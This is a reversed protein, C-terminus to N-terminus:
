LCCLSSCCSICGAHQAIDECLGVENYHRLQESEGQKRWVLESNYSLCLLFLMGQLSSVARWTEMSLLVLLGNSLNVTDGWKHSAWVRLGGENSDIINELCLVFSAIFWLYNAETVWNWTSWWPCWSSIVLHSTFRVHVYSFVISYSPFEIWTVCACTPNCQQLIFLYIIIFLGGQTDYLMENGEFQLLHWEKSFGNCSCLM